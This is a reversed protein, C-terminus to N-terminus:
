AFIKKDKEKFIKDTHKKLSKIYTVDAADYLIKNKCMHQIAHSWFLKKEIEWNKISLIICANWKNSVWLSIEYEFTIKKISM